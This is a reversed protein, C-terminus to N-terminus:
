SSSATGANERDARAWLQIQAWNLRLAGETNKIVAFLQSNRLDWRPSDWTKLACRVLAHYVTAPGSGSYGWTYRPAEGPNPLPEIRMDGNPTPALAFLGTEGRAADGAIVTAETWGDPFTQPWEIALRHYENSPRIMAVMRGAPDRYLTMVERIARGLLDGHIDEPDEAVRVLLRVLRRSPKALLQEQEDEPLPTCTALYQKTVPGLMLITYPIPTEAAVEPRTPKLMAALTRCADWLAEGAHDGWQFDAELPRLERLETEIAEVDLKPEGDDSALRDAATRALHELDLPWDPRAPRAVIYCGEGRDALDGHDRNANELVVLADDALMAFAQPFRQHLGWEVAAALQKRTRPWETTTDPVTFTSEGYAGMCRTAETTCTGDLWLPVPRGIVAAIDSVFPLGISKVEIQDPDPDVHLPLHDDPLEGAARALLVRLRGQRAPPRRPGPTELLYADVSMHGLERSTLGGFMVSNPVLVVADAWFAPELVHAAARAAVYQDVYKDTYRSVHVVHGQPTDWVIVYVRHLESHWRVSVEGTSMVPAPVTAAPWDYPWSVNEPLTRGTNKCWWDITRGHWWPRGDVDHGDPAPLRTRAPDESYLGRARGESIGVRRALQALTFREGVQHSKARIDM